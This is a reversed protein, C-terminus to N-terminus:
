KLRAQSILGTLTQPDVPKVLHRDFGAERAMQLDQEQGWGTVAVLLISHGWPRDRIERAAQYGNMQPMGIDLLAIEPRFSEAIRLADLGTHATRVDHGEIELILALTQAADQNDDAVLVRAANDPTRERAAASRPLQATKSPAEALRVRFTSGKGDGESFAELTGGHLEVISKALTLGIGLGERGGPRDIQVFIDFIRALMEAPIGMGTDTFGVIIHQAERQTTISIQSGPPSYKASNNLLNSFVQSLRTVDADVYLRDPASLVHLKHGKSELLPLSTEVAIQLITDLDVRERRLELRGQTIRSVDMLDDILRVLHNLQREVMARLDATRKEDGPLLAMLQMANRIPALPNRLEHALTALFEDKRRDAERLALESRLRATEITRRRAIEGNLQQIKENLAIFASGSEPRSVLRLLVTSVGATVDSPRFAAGSARFPLLEGDRRRLNLTGLLLQGSHSCRRLYDRVESSPDDTLEQLDHAVIAQLPLCLGRALARNAAIIGGEVGVLMLPEPLLDITAYFAAGLEM